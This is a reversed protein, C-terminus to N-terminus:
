RRALTTRTTLSRLLAISVPTSHPTTAPFSCCLTVAAPPTNVSLAKSFEPQTAYSSAKTATFYKTPDPDPDKRNCLEIPRTKHIKPVTLDVHVFDLTALRDRDFIQKYEAANQHTSAVFIAYNGSIESVYVNVVASTLIAKSSQGIYGSM